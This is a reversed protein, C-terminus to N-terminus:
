AVAVRRGSVSLGVRCRVVSKSRCACLGCAIFAVQLGCCGRLHLSSYVPLALGVLDVEETWM